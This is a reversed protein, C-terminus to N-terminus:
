DTQLMNCIEFASVRGRVMFCFGPNIERSPSNVYVDKDDTCASLVVMLAATIAKVSDGAAGSYLSIVLM